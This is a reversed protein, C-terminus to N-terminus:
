RSCRVGSCACRCSRSSRARRPSSSRGIAILSGVVLVVSTTSLWDFETGGLSTFLTLGGAGLAIFLAGLYDIVPRSTSPIDPIVKAAVVVVLIGIPLNVYFCWRWSLYDTFFGGLLPGIVTAVGFVAGLAGQYKGRERLPVVDAILATATVTLGGGGIGQMGRATILWAM